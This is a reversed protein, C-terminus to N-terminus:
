NELPALTGFRLKAVTLIRAKTELSQCRLCANEIKSAEQKAIEDIRLDGSTLDHTTKVCESQFSSHTNSVLNRM